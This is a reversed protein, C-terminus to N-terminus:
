HAGHAPYFDMAKEIKTVVRNQKFCSIKRDDILDQVQEIVM